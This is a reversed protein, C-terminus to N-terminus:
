GKVGGMERTENEDMVEYISDALKFYLWLFKVGVGGMETVLWHDGDPELPSLFLMWFSVAVIHHM